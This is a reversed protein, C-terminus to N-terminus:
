EVEGKLAESMVPAGLELNPDLILEVGPACKIGPDSKYELGPDLEPASSKLGEAGRVDCTRKLSWAPLLARWWKSHVFDCLGSPPTILHCELEAAAWLALSPTSGKCGHVGGENHTHLGTRTKRRSINSSM